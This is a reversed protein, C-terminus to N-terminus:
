GNNDGELLTFCRSEINRVRKDGNEDLFIFLPPKVALIEYIHGDILGGDGCTCNKYLVYDGIKM